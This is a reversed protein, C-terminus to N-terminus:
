GAVPECGYTYKESRTAHISPLKAVTSSISAAKGDIPTM